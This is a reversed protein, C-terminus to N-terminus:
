HSAEDLVVDPVWFAQWRTTKEDASLWQPSATVREAFADAEDLASANAAGYRRGEHEFVVAVLVGCHGCLLFDATNSGQRYRVMAQMDRATVSLSGHPDSVYAAGHKRCFTCDCARPHTAAPPQMTAFQLHLQGCHCGGQLTLSPPASLM